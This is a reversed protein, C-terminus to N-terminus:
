EANILSITSFFSTYLKHKIKFIIINFIQDLKDYARYREHVM